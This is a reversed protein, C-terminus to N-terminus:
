STLALAVLHASYYAYFAWRQWPFNPAAWQASVAVHITVLAGHTAAAAARPGTRFYWCRSM